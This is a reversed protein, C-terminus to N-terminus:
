RSSKPGSRGKPRAPRPPDGRGAALSLLATKVDDLLREWPREPAGNSGAVRRDHATWMGDSLVGVHQPRRHIFKTSKM